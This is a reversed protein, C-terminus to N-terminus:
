FGSLLRPLGTIKAVFRSFNDKHSLFVRRIAFRDRKLSSYSVPGPLLSFATEFGAERVKTAIDTNFDSSQGNPYAFSLVPKGTMEEIRQKCRSVELSVQDLTIRTLIPHSATHGGLEIGNQRMEYAQAWSFTMKQFYGAPINVALIEPLREVLKQKRADPIQKLSEIWTHMGTEKSKQDTWTLTGYGPLEAVDKKTNFFCYAILDWYFPKDVEIYDTALYIVASLGHKKLIPYANVYNDLYGDDFTILAAHAPLSKRNKLFNVLDNISIVRYKRSVYEMQRDFDAVSASVNPRFTDFGPRDINDIRHYNLVTLVSPMFRQVLEFFGLKHAAIIPYDSKRLNSPLCQTMKYFDLTLSYITVAFVNGFVQKSRQPTGM